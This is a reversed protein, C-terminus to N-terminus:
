SHLAVPILVGKNLRCRLCGSNSCHLNAPAGLSADSMSIACDTNAVHLCTCVIQCSYCVKTAVALDGSKQRSSPNDPQATLQTCKPM